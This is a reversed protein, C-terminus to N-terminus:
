MHFLWPFPVCLSAHRKKRKLWHWLVFAQSEVLTPSPLIPFVSVTSDRVVALEHERQELKQRLESMEESREAGERRLADIESRLKSIVAGLDEDLQKGASTLGIQGEVELLEKQLQLEVPSKFQMMNQIIATASAENDDHRVVKAGRNVMDGWIDNRNRRQDMRSEAEREPVQNWMTTAITVRRYADEGLIKKFLRNRRAESGLLRQQSIPHVFIVGTLLMGEDYSQAMYSAVLALIDADSRETDDFGPTDILTVTQGDLTFTM